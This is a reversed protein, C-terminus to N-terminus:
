ILTLSIGDGFPQVFNVRAPRRPDIGCQVARLKSGEGLFRPLLRHVINLASLDPPRIEGLRTARFGPETPWDKDDLRVGEVAAANLGGYDRDDGTVQFNRSGWAIHKQRGAGRTKKSVRYHVDGLNERDITVEKRLV